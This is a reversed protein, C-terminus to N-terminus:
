CFLIIPLSGISVNETDDESVRWMVNRLVLATGHGIWLYVYAEVKFYCTIRGRAADEFTQPPVLQVIKSKLGSDKILKWIRQSMINKDSGQDALLDCEVARNGFTGGFLASHSDIREANLRKINGNKNKKFESILTKKKQESTNKCDLM